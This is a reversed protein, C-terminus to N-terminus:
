RREYDRVRDRWEQQVRSWGYKTIRQLGERLESATAGADFMLRIGHRGGVDFVMEAIVAGAAYTQPNPYGPRMLSDLTVQPHANLWAALQAVSGAYNLGGTGGLWTPVGESVFTSTSATMLPRLVLHALEHRYNEGISPVGSFVQRNVPQAVGGTAGFKVDSVLGMAAYVADVSETLYYVHRDIRPVSLGDALSDVFTSASEARVRNFRYEPPYVYELSGVTDRKWSAVNRPLANAMQWLGNRHVAYVTVTMRSWWTAPSNPAENITFRTTIRFERQAPPGVQEIGAIEANGGDPLYVAALDYMPWQRQEEEVWLPTPTGANSYYQGRKSALYSHWTRMAARADAGLKTSDVAVRLTQAHLLPRTGFAGFTITACVVLMWTTARRAARRQTPCRCDMLRM